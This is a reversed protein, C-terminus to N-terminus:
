RRRRKKTPASASTSSASKGKDLGTLDVVRPFGDMDSTLMCVISFDIPRDDVKKGDVLTSDTGTIKYTVQDKDVPTLPQVSVQIKNSRHDTKWQETERMLTIPSDPIVKTGELKELLKLDLQEHMLVTLSEKITEPNRDLIHQAVSTAFDALKQERQKLQQEKSCGSTTVTIAVAVFMLAGTVAARKLSQIQRNANESHNM